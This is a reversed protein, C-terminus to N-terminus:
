PATTNIIFLAGSVVLRISSIGTPTPTTPTIVMQIALNDGQNIILNQFSGSSKLFSVAPILNTLTSPYTWTQLDEYLPTVNYVVNTQTNYTEPFDLIKTDFTLPLNAVLTTTGSVSSATANLQFQMLKAQQPASWSSQQITFNQIATSLATNLINYGTGSLMITMSANTALPTLDISGSNFTRIQAFPATPGIPGQVGQAGDEGAPGTAGPDGTL